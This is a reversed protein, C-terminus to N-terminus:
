DRDSLVQDFDPIMLDGSGEGAAPEHDAPVAPLTDLSPKTLARDSTPHPNANEAAVPPSGELYARQAVEFDVQNFFAAYLAQDLVAREGQEGLQGSAVKGVSFNIRIRVTEHSRQEIFVSAVPTQNTRALGAPDLRLRSNTPAAATILGSALDASLVRYGSDLLVNMVSAYAAAKTTSFERSQLQRLEAPGLSMHPRPVVADSLLTSGAAAASQIQQVPACSPLMLGAAGVAVLLIPKAFRSM